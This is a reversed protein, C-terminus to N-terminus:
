IAALIFLIRDEVQPTTCSLMHVAQTSTDNQKTCNTHLPHIEDARTVAASSVLVLFAWRWSGINEATRWFHAFTHALLGHWCITFPQHLTCATKLTATFSLLFIETYRLVSSCALPTEFNIIVASLLAEGKKDM